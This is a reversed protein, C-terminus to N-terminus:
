KFFFDMLFSWRWRHKLVGSRGGKRYTVGGHLASGCETDVAPSQAEVGTVLGPSM